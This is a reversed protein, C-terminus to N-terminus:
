EVQKAKVISCKTFMTKLPAIYIFNNNNGKLNFMKILCKWQIKFPNFCGTQQQQHV